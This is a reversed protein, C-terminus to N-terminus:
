KIEFSELIIKAQKKYKFTKKYDNQFTLVYDNESNYFHHVTYFFTHNRVFDTKQITITSKVKEFYHYESLKKIRSHNTQTIKGHSFKTIIKKSNGKENFESLSTIKNGIIFKVFFSLEGNIPSVGIHSDIPALFLRDSITDNIFVVWDSAYNFKIHRNEFTPLKKSANKQAHQLTSCSLFLLLPIFLVFKKM